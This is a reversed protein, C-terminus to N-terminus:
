YLPTKGAAFNLMTKKLTKISQLVLKERVSWELKKGAILNALSPNITVIIVQKKSERELSKKKKTKSRTNSGRSIGVLYPDRM